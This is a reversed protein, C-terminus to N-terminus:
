YDSLTTALVKEREVSDEYFNFWSWVVRWNQHFFINRVPKTKKKKVSELSFYKIDQYKSKEQELGLHLKSISLFFFFFWMCLFQPCFCSSPGRGLAWWFSFFSLLVPICLFHAPFQHVIHAEVVCWLKEQLCRFCLSLESPKWTFPHSAAYWPCQYTGPDIRVSSVESAETCFADVTNFTTHYM